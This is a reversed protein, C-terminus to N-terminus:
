VDVWKGATASQHAADLVAQSWVADEFNPSPSPQGKDIAHVMHTVLASFPARLPFDEAALRFREPIELQTSKGHSRKGGYLENMLITPSTEMFALSPMM